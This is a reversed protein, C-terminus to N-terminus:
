HRCDAVESPAPETRLCLAPWLPAPKTSYPPRKGAAVAYLTEHCARIARTMAEHPRHTIDMLGINWNEGDFRGLYPQDYM